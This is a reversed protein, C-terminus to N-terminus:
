GALARYVSARGIGLQTADQTMGSSDCCLAHGRRVEGAAHRRRARHFSDARTTKRPDGGGQAPRIVSLTQACLGQSPTDIGSLHTTLQSRAAKKTGIPPLFM